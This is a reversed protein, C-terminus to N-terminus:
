TLIYNRVCTCIYMHVYTQIDTQRNIHIYTHIYIHVYKHINMHVYKHINMHLKMHNKRGHELAAEPTWVICSGSFTKTGKQSQERVVIVILSKSHKSAEQLFRQWGNQAYFDINYFDLLLFSVVKLRAPNSRVVWLELTRPLLGIRHGEVVGGPCFNFFDPPFTASTHLGWNMDYVSNEWWLIRHCLVWSIYQKRACM